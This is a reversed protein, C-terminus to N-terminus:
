AHTNCSTFYGCQYYYRTYLVVESLLNVLMTTVLWFHALDANQVDSTM